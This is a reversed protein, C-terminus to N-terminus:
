FYGLIFFLVMRKKRHLGMDLFIRTGLDYVLIKKNFGIAPNNSILIELLLPDIENIKKKAHPYGSIFTVVKPQTHGPM